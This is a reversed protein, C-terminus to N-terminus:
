TRDDFERRGGPPRAPGTRPEAPGPFAPRAGSDTVPSGPAADPAKPHTGHGQLDTGRIRLM